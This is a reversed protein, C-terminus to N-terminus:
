PTKAEAEPAADAAKEEATDDAKTEDGAGTETEAQPEATEAQVEAVYHSRVFANKFSKFFKIKLLWPLVQLIHPALHM